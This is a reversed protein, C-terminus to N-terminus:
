YKGKRWVAIVDVDRKGNIEHRFLVAQVPANPKDKSVFSDEEVLLSHPGIKAMNRVEEETADRSTKPAIKKRARGDFTVSYWGTGDKTRAPLCEIDAIDPWFLDTRKWLGSPKDNVVEFWVTHNTVALLRFGCLKKDPEPLFGSPRNKVYYRPTTVHGNANRTEILVFEEYANWSRVYDWIPRITFPEVLVEDHDGGITLVIKGVGHVGHLLVEVNKGDAKERIEPEGSWLTESLRENNRGLSVLGNAVLEQMSASDYLPRTVLFRATGKQLPEAKVMYNKVTSFTVIQIDRATGVYDAFRTFDETKVTVNVKEGGVSFLWAHISDMWKKGNNKFLFFLLVLILLGILHWITFGSKRKKANM